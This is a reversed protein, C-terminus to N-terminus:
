HLHLHKIKRWMFIINGCFAEQWREKGKIQLLACEKINTALCLWILIQSSRITLSGAMRGLSWIVVTIKSQLQERNNEMTRHNAALVAFRANLSLVNCQFLIRFITRKTTLMYINRRSLKDGHYCFTGNREQDDNPLLPTARYLRCTGHAPRRVDPVSKWPRCFVEDDSFSTLSAAATTNQPM